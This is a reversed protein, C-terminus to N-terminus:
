GKVNFTVGELPETEIHSNKRAKYIEIAKPIFPKKNASIKDVLEYLEAIQKNVNEITEEEMNRNGDISEKLILRWKAIEERIINEMDVFVRVIDIENKANTLRPEFTSIKKQYERKEQNFKKKDM